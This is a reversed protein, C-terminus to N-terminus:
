SRVTGNDVYDFNWAWQQGVVNVHMAKPDFLGASERQLAVMGWILAFLCMLASVIIWTGAVRPSDRIEHDADDPPTDGYHRKALLTTLAMAAVLGAIPAAAWTFVRMMNITTAMTESAPAGMSRIQVESAVFGIIATLVIWLLGTQQVDKRKFISSRKQTELDSM